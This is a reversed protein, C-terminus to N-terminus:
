VTEPKPRCRRWDGAGCSGVRRALERETERGRKREGESAREAKSSVRRLAARKRGREAM